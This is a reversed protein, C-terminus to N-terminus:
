RKLGDWSAQVVQRIMDEDVKLNRYISERALSSLPGFTLALLVEMPADKIIQETQGKLLLQQLTEYEEPAECADESYYPSFYYQELFRFEAPNELFFRLLRSSM